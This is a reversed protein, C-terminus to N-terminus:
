KTKGANSTAPGGLFAGFVTSLGQKINIWISKVVPPLNPNSVLNDIRIEWLQIVQHTYASTQYRLKFFLLYAAFQILATRSLTFLQAALRLLLLFEVNAAAFMLQMQHNTVFSSIKVSLSSTQPYGLIPLLYSYTYSLVHVVSFIIFPPLTGAYPPTFLWLLAIFFYQLNTDKLLDAAKPRQGGKFYVENIIYLFTLTIALYAERYWFISFSPSFMLGAAHLLYNVSGLLALLHGLFWYFKADQIRFFFDFYVSFYLM